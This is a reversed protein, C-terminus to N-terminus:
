DNKAFCNGCNGPVEHTCPLDGQHCTSCWHDRFLGPSLEKAPPRQLKEAIAKFEREARQAELRVHRLADGMHAQVVAPDDSLAVLRTEALQIASRVAQLYNAAHERLTFLTM